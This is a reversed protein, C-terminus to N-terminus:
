REFMRLTEGAFRAKGQEEFGEQPLFGTFWSGEGVAVRTRLGEDDAFESPFSVLREPVDTDRYEPVVCVHQVVVTEDVVRYSVYGVIEDGENEDEEVAIKMTRDQVLDRMSGVSMDQPLVYCNAIEAVGDADDERADRYRLSM